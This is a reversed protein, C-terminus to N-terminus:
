IKKIYVDKGMKKACDIMSRTGRSQGDWFCIVFDCVKAMQQNRIPGASRGYKKWDAPYREIALGHELAYREGILDAGSAGGSVIVVTHEKVIDSLYSDIYAKAEEYDNYYRCGAIVVKKIM